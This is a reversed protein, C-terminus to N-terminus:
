MKALLEYVRLRPLVINAYQTGQILNILSIYAVGMHAQFFTRWKPNKFVNKAETPVYKM